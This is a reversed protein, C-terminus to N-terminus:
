CVNSADKLNNQPNRELAHVLSPLKGPDRIPFVPIGLFVWDLNGDETYLKFAFGRPDRV